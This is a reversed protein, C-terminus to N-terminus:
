YSYHDGTCYFAQLKLKHSRCLAIKQYCLKTQLTAEELNEAQFHQGDEQIKRGQIFSVMVLSFVSLYINAYLSSLLYSFLGFNREM